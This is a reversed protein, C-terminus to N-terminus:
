KACSNGSNGFERFEWPPALSYSHTFIVECYNGLGQFHNQRPAFSNRVLVWLIGSNWLPALSYSHTFIVEWYNGLGHFHNQRVAFVNRLVTGLIGSNGSNGPPIPHIRILLYWKGMIVATVIGISLVLVCLNPLPPVFFCWVWVCLCLFAFPGLDPGLRLSSFEWFAFRFVM